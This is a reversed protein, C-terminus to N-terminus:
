ERLKNVDDETLGDLAKVEIRVEDNLWSGM